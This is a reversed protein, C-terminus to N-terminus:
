HAIPWGAEEVLYPLDGNNRDAFATVAQTNKKCRDLCIQERSAERATFLCPLVLLLIMGLCGVCIIVEILGFGQRRRTRPATFKMM